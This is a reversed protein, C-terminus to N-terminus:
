SCSKELKINHYKLTMAYAGARLVEGERPHTDIRRQQRQEQDRAKVCFETGSSRLQTM